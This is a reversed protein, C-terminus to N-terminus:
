AATAVRVCNRGDQKALYLASDAVEVLQEQTSADEPFMAVGISVSSECSHAAQRLREALHLADTRSTRPAVVIFEDGGYRAVLDGARMSAGLATAVERLKDDGAPHGQRDNIQKFNDFDILMLALPVKEAIAAELSVPYSQHFHRRNPLGTLQDTTAAASIVNRLRQQGDALMVANWGVILLLLSVVIVYNWAVPHGIFAITGAFALYNAAVWLTYSSMEKRDILHAISVISLFYVAWVPNRVDHLAILAITVTVVDLHRTIFAIRQDIDAEDDPYIIELYTHFVDYLAILTASILLARGSADLIGLEVLGIYLGLLAWRLVLISRRFSADAMTQPIAERTLCDGEYEKSFTSKTDAELSAWNLTRSCFEPSRPM